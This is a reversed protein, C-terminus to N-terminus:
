EEIKEMSIKLPVGMAKIIGDAQAKYTKATDYSYIGILAKGSEHAELMIGVAMDIDKQFVKNLVYVVVEMPTVDDNHIMMQYQSPKKIKPVVVTQTVQEMERVGEM